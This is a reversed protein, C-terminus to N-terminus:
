RVVRRLLTDGALTVLRALGHCFSSLTAIAMGAMWPNDVQLVYALVYSTVIGMLVKVWPAFEKPTFIDIVQILKYVALAALFYNM